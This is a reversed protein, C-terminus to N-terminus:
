TSDPTEPIEPTLEPEEVLPLDPLNKLRQRRKRAIILMVFPLLAFILSNFAIVLYLYGQRKSHKGFRAHFDWLTIRYSNIFADSFRIRNGARYSLAVREWFGQWADPYRDQMYRAAMASSLYFRQWDAQEEPYKHGLRFLDSKPNILSERLYILYKEYGVQDSFYTAMGEHFWLPAGIFLEDIYWHIYEHVLIKLYDELVQDKSRTYIAKESGSYFADSFEVIRAKGQSLKQYESESYIIYIKVKADPYVGFRMQLDGIKQTLHDSLARDANNPPRNSYLEHFPASEVPHYAFLPALMLGLLLAFCLRRYHRFWVPIAGEPRSHKANM